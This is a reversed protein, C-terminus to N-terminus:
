CFTRGSGCYTDKASDKVTDIRKSRKKKGNEVRYVETYIRKYRNTGKNDFFTSTNEIEVKPSKNLLRLFWRIENKEGMLRIKLM